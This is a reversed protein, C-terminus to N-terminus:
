YLAEEISNVTKHITSTYGDLVEPLVSLLSSISIGHLDKSSEDVEKDSNGIIRGELAKFKSIAKDLKDLQEAIEIGKTPEVAKTETIENMKSTQNHAASLM